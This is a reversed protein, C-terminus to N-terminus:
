FDPFSAKYRSLGEFCMELHGSEHVIANQCHHFCTNRWGINVCSCIFNLKAIIYQPELGFIWESFQHNCPKKLGHCYPLRQRFAM